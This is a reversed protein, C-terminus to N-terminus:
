SRKVWLELDGDAIREHFTRLYAEPMKGGIGHFTLVRTGNALEALRTQTRMVLQDFAGPPLAADIQNSAAFRAEDFPNYFYLAPYVHWDLAFADAHIFTASSCLRTALARSQEVLGARQEVGVYRGESVLAGLVCFKGVGSGVDLLTEDPQLALLEAARHCVQTPTWHVASARRAPEDLLLDFDDPAALPALAWLKGRPASRAPDGPTTLVSLRPTSM